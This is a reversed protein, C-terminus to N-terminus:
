SHGPHGVSDFLHQLAYEGVTKQEPMHQQKSQSRHHAHTRRGKISHKRDIRVQPIVTNNAEGTEREGGSTSTSSSHVSTNLASPLTDSPRRELATHHIM